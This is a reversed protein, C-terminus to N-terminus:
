ERWIRKGLKWGYKAVLLIVLAYLAYQLIAFLLAVLNVSINQITENVQLISNKVAANWSDRIGKVDILSSDTVSVYFYTYDLRDLQQAKSRQINDLRSSINIRQRTMQEIASIKSNIVSALSEADKVNTALKMVEDYADVAKSLTDDISALKKQLIDIESTYDQVQQEVTYTNNVLEKPNLGKIVALIEDASGRKAKFSYSCGKDYESASEFIVDERPKLGSVAACTKGPQGTEILARYEDMEFQEAASGASALDGGDENETSIEANRLSLGPTAANFEPATAPAFKSDLNSVQSSQIGSYGYDGGSEIGHTGRMSGILSGIFVFAVCVVILTLVAFGAIKLAPKIKARIDFNKEQEM